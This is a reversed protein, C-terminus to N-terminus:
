PCCACWSTRGPWFIRCNTRARLCTVGEISKESRVMGGYRLRTGRGGTRLRGGIHGLGLIGVRRRAAVPTVIQRWEARAQQADTTALARHHTLVHLVVYERMRQVMDPGTTRLIPLHRPLDPDRLVHDIGAGISVVAKLGAFRAIGGAPPAWVVAYRVKSVDGPDDFDRVEVEPLAASLLDVWERTEDPDGLYVVVTM